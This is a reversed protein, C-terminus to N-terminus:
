RARDDKPVHVANEREFSPLLAGALVRAAPELDNALDLRQRAQGAERVVMGVVVPGREGFLGGKSRAGDPVWEDIGLNADAVVELKASRAGRQEHGAGVHAALARKSRDIPM